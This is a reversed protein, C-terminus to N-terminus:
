FTEYVLSEMKTKRSRYMTSPTPAPLANIKLAECMAMARKMHLPDSVILASNFRKQDMLQKAQILNEWTITSQEELLINTEPIGKSIAYRKAAQSDSLNQGKGFGGTFILQKVKRAKFLTIGHNIRERFVPSVKGNSSSAGLVIAVDYPTDFSQSAYSHIRFANVGIGSLSLLLVILLYTFFRRKKM